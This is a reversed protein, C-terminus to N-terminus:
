DVQRDCLRVKEAVDEPAADRVLPPLPDLDSVGDVRSLPLHDRGFDVRVVRTRGGKKGQGRRRKASVSPEECLGPSRSRTGPPYGGSGKSRWPSTLSEKVGKGM